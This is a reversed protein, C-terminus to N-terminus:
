IVNKLALGNPEAQIAQWDLSLSIKVEKIEPSCFIAFCACTRLVRERSSKTLSIREFPQTKESLLGYM